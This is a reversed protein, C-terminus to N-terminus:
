QIVKDARLLVSQPIALGLAKATKLNVVLEVSTPLEVPLEAPRAGKLIKDVYTALRRYSDRLNPGYSMLNGSEAFQAWGSIAPIRHKAGFQAIRESYRMVFGDPFVNIAESRSKPMAAFAEEFEAATRVQFYELTLGLAKAAAQSARLESQEGFHQPNALIAVRKLGPKVEKLLELRKGVLELALFSVGTFNGGPRAFSQVLKGEVPDGSHGFVVPMTAGARFVSDTAPGGQTVIMQLKSRALEAALRELRDNSGEGWRAEIILNRGEVYGLDRLGERFAEFMPPNGSGRDNSIWGIRFVTAQQAAVRRSSLLALLAGASLGRILKRRQNM